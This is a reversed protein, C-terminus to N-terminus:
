ASCQASVETKFKTLGMAEFKLMVMTGTADQSLAQDMHIGTQEGPAM